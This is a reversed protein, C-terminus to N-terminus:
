VAINKQKRVDVNNKKILNMIIKLHRKKKTHVYIYKMKKNEQKFDM